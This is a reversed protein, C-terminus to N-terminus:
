QHVHDELLLRRSEPLSEDVYGPVLAQFDECNRLTHTSLDASPSATISKWVREGAQAVVRDDVKENRIDSLLRDFKHDSM